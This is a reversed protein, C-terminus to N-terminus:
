GRKLTLTETVTPYGSVGIVSRNVYQFRLTLVGSDLTYSGSVTAKSTTSTTGSGISVTGSLSKDSALTVDLSHGQVVSTTDTRSRYTVAYDATLRGTSGLAVGPVTAAYSGGQDDTGVSTGAYAGSPLNATLTLTDTEIATGNAATFVVRYTGDPNYAANGSLTAATGSGITQTGTVVGATSVAAVIKRTATSGGSATVSLDAVTVTGDSSVTAAGTGAYASQAPANDTGSLKVTYGGAAARLTTTSGDTGANTGGDLGGTGTTTLDTGGGGGGDGGCGVLVALLGIGLLPLVRRM